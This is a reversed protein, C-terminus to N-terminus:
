RRGRILRGPRVGTDEDNERVVEGHVVTAVYGHAPQLFRQGGAPLDCTAYPLGLALHDFDIVNLDARETFKCEGTEIAYKDHYVGVAAPQGAIPLAEEQASPSFYFIFYSTGSPQGGEDYVIHNTAVHRTTRAPRPLDPDEEAPKRTGATTVLTGNKTFLAGFRDRQGTDAYYAYKLATERCL